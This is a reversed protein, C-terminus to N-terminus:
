DLRQCLMFAEYKDSNKRYDEYTTKIKPKTKSDKYIKVITSDISDGEQIVKISRPRSLHYKIPSDKDGVNFLPKSLLTLKAELSVVANLTNPNRLLEWNDGNGGSGIYLWVKENNALNLLYVTDFEYGSIYDKHTDEDYGGIPILGTRHFIHIIKGEIYYKGDELIKSEPSIKLLEKKGKKSM